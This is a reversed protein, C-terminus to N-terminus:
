SACFGPAGTRHFGVPISLKRMNTLPAASIAAARPPATAATKTTWEPYRYMVEDPSGWRTAWALPERMPTATPSVMMPPANRMGVVMLRKDDLRGAPDLDIGTLRDVAVPQQLPLQHELARGGGRLPHLEQDAPDLALPGLAAGLEPVRHDLRGPM